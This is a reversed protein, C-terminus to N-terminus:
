EKLYGNPTVAPIVGNLKGAIIGNHINGKAIVQPFVMTILGVSLAGPTVIFIHSYWLLHYKRIYDEGHLGEEIKQTRYGPIDWLYIKKLDGISYKACELTTEIEGIRIENNEQGFSKLLNKVFSSKGAGASGCVVLHLHETNGDFNLVPPRPYKWNRVLKEINARHKSVLIVPLNRIKTNM